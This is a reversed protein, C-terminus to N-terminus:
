LPNMVRHSPKESWYREAVEDALELFAQATTKWSFRQMNVYGLTRLRHREAPLTMREMCADLEEPSHPDFFMASTGVVEPFSSAHSCIVPCGSAQAELLPLGFGEYLSPCICCRANRYLTRLQERTVTGLMTFSGSPLRAVFPASSSRALEYDGGTIILQYDPHRMVFRQFAQLLVPVNKRKSLGGCYFLYPKGTETVQEKEGDQLWFSQHVGHHIVRLRSVDLTPFLSRVDAATKESVVHTKAARFVTRRIMMRMYLTDLLSYERWDYKEPQPYYMLDHLTTFGPISLGLPLILKPNYLVANRRANAYRPVTWHDWLLRNHGFTSLVVETLAPSRVPCLGPSPVLVEISRGQKECLEALATLLEHCM